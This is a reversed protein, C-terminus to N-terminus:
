VYALGELEGPLGSEELVQRPVHTWVWTKGKKEMLGPAWRSQSGGVVRYVVGSEVCRKLTSAWQKHEEPSLPLTTLTSVGHGTVWPIDGDVFFICVFWGLFRPDRKDDREGQAIMNRFITIQEAFVPHLFSPVNLSELALQDPLISISEFTFATSPNGQSAPKYSMKFVAIQSYLDIPPETSALASALTVEFCRRHIESFDELIVKRQLIPPIESNRVPLGSKGAIINPIGHQQTNKCYEKHAPWSKVQHDRCCFRISKCGSCLPFPKEGPARIRMCHQYWCGEPTNQSYVFKGSNIKFVTKRGLSQPPPAM